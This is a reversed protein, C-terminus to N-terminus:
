DTQSKITKRSGPTSGDADQITRLNPTNSDLGSRLESREVVHTTVLDLVLFILNEGKHEAIGVIRGLREQSESPSSPNASTSTTNSICLYM